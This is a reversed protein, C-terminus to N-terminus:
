LWADADISDFKLYSLVWCVVGTITSGPANIVPDLVPPIAEKEMIMKISRAHRQRLKLNAAQPAPREFEWCIDATLEDVSKKDERLDASLEKYRSQTLEWLTFAAQTELTDWPLGRDASWGKLGRPGNLRDLRWQLVADSGHDKRGTTVPLMNNEVSGNGVFAYAGDASLAKLGLDPFGKVLYGVFEKQRDLLTTM